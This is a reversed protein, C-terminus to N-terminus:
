VLVMIKREWRDWLEENGADWHIRGIGRREYRGDGIHEVLMVYYFCRYADGESSYKEHLFISREAIGDHKSQNGFSLLLFEYLQDNGQRQLDDIWSRDPSPLLGCVDGDSDLISFCPLEQLWDVLWNLLKRPRPDVRFKICTGWFILSGISLETVRAELMGYSLAWEPRQTGTYNRIPCLNRGLETGGGGRAWWQVMTLVTEKDQIMMMDGQYDVKGKWAAWCWTPLRTMEVVNHAELRRQQQDIPYWLLATDFHDLPMGLFFGCPGMHPALRRMVGTFANLIDTDFTLSRSSYGSVLLAYESFSRHSSVRTLFDSNVLFDLQGRREVPKATHQEFRDKGEAHVDECRSDHPCRFYMQYDTFLLCRPSLVGEQFTWGRKSWRSRNLARDYDPLAVLIDLGEVQESLQKNARPLGNIGPIGYNQSSDCESAVIITFFSKGYVQDMSEILRGKTIPDDQVICLADVWLYRIGMGRTVDMADIIVKPLSIRSSDISGPQHLRDFNHLCLKTTDFLPWVYSLAVYDSDWNVSVLCSRETDIVTLQLEAERKEKLPRSDAHCQACEQMWFKALSLNAVDREVQRGYFRPSKRLRIANDGQLRLSVESIIVGSSRILLVELEYTRDKRRSPLPRASPRTTVVVFDDDQPRPHSAVHRSVEKTLARSLLRCLSCSRCAAVDRFWGLHHKRGPFYTLLKELEVEECALCADGPGPTHPVLEQNTPPKFKVFRETGCEIYTENQLREAQYTLLWGSTQAGESSPDYREPGVHVVGTWELVNTSSHFDRLLGRLVPPNLAREEKSSKM